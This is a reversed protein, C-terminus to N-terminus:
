CIPSYDLIAEDDVEEMLYVSNLTEFGDETIKTVPSTTFRGRILEGNRVWRDLVVSLGVQPPIILEGITWYDVNPSLHDDDRKFITSVISERYQDHNDATEVLPNDVSKLKTIKYM